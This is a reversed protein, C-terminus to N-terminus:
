SSGLTRLLLGFFEPLRYKILEKALNLVFPIFSFPFDVLCVVINEYRM